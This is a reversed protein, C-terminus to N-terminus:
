GHRLILLTLIRGHIQLCDLSWIERPAGHEYPFAASFCISDGGRGTWNPSESCSSQEYCPNWAVAQM